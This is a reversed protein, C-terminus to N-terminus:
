YTGWNLRYSTSILGFMLTIAALWSIFGWSCKQDNTVETVHNNECPSQTSLAPASPLDFCNMSVQTSHCVIGNIYKKQSMVSKKYRNISSYNKSSNYHRSRNDDHHYNKHPDNGVGHNPHVRLYYQCRRIGWSDCTDIYRGWAFLSHLPGNNRTGKHLRLPRNNTTSLSTHWGGLSWDWWYLYILCLQVPTSRRCRPTM